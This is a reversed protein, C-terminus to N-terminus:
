RRGRKKTRPTPRIFPRVVHFGAGGLRRLLTTPEKVGFIEGLLALTRLAPVRIGIEWASVAARSTGLRRALDAQTWGRRERAFRIHLM